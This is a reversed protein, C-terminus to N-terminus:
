VPTPSSPSTQRDDAGVKDIEALKLWLSDKEAPTMKQYAREVDSKKQEEFRGYATNSMEIPANRLADLEAQNIEMWLALISTEEADGETFQQYLVRRNAVNGMKSVPVGKWRLLM